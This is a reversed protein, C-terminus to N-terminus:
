KFTGSKILSTMKMYREEIEDQNDKFRLDVVAEIHERNKTIQVREWSNIGKIGLTILGIIFTVSPIVIALLENIEM